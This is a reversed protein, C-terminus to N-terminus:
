ENDRGGSNLLQLLLSKEQKIKKRSKLTISYHNVLSHNDIYACM